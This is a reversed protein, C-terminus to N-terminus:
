ESRLAVIPDVRMARRAPILCGIMSAAILTASALALTAPDSPSVRVLQTELLRNVAFSAVLGIALGIALPLLGQAFVLRLVDGKTAGMAVRVGIEQTRQSVSHAIVAYLGASALLLAIAAFTVFLGALIGSTGYTLAGLRERLTFPGYIPLEPDLAQVQRRVVTSLTAPPVRTQVIMWMTSQSQQTFPLYVVPDFGRRGVDDQAIDPAVGVVTLWPGPVDGTFFRLRKGLPDQDAWFQNAFRVNVIAVTESASTDLTTFERGSRVNTGLTRFYADSVVLASMTPRRERDVPAAGDLEFVLKSSGNAPLRSALAISEVGPVASTGERLREFFRRHSDADRYQAAPLSISAALVNATRVGLEATYVNLFSRIMVGAAALLVVALAMEAVILLAPLRRSRGGSIVGRGGDKLTANVDLRSLRSAPAVGFLLGTGISVAVFYGVTRLDVDYDLILWPSQFAMAGAYARVGWVAIWWGAIGGLLSLIVSEVLLQRVIRGRGAGLAMRVSLERSRSATRALTLNALNACAILLVFGVAGWMSGYITAANPGVFFEHFRQVIPPQGTNTLPYSAALRDGIVAMENRADDASVGDRLRGVAFWLNRADRKATEPTRRLAVWLDQNQPFSFGKPMVGIVTSPEGNIKITRGVIAPDRDYRREWLRYGLIAVLRAGPAEDDATFDRGLLPSQGLLAFTNATVETTDYREAFGRDDSLIMGVGHVAAMGEFSQAAGRWDEFDPYSVCCGYGRSSIYLLRDSRVVAPFGKFLIANTLTFVAANVGIGIALTLVAVFAFLRARRLSRLAHRVDQVFADLWGATTV